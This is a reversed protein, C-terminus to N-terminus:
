CEVFQWWKKNSEKKEIELGNGGRVQSAGNRRGESEENRRQGWKPASM